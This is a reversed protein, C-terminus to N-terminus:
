QMDWGMLRQKGGAGNDPTNAFDCLLKLHLKQRYIAVRLTAFLGEM